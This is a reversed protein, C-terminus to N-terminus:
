CQFAGALILNATHSIPGISGPDLIHNFFHPQRCTFCRAVHSQILQLGGL